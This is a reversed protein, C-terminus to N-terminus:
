NTEDMNITDDLLLWGIGLSGTNGTRRLLGMDERQAIFKASARQATGSVTVLLTVRPKTQTLSACEKLSELVDPALAFVSASPEDWLTKLPGLQYADPAKHRLV